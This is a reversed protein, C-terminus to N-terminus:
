ISKMLFRKRLERLFLAMLLREDTVETYDPVLVPQATSYIPTLGTGLFLMLAIPYFRTQM